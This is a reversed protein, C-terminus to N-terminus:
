AAESILAGLRRWTLIALDTNKQFLAEAVQAATSAMDDGTIRLTIEVKPPRATVQEGAQARTILALRQDAPLTKLADLEVGKDLSTGVVAQLDDGLAEARALHRNIDKKTMGSAAATATAFKEQGAGFTGDPNRGTPCSTGGTLNLAEWIEKRRRIAASRQAATLEARCLNEDIEVLEARIYEIGTDLISAAITEWGLRRAAEVRHHGAVIRHVPVWGGNFTKTEKVVIPQILGSAQLSEALAEVAREDLPRATESPLLTAIPIDALRM